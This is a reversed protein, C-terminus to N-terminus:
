DFIMFARLVFHARMCIQVRQISAFTSMVIVRLSILVCVAECGSIAVNEPADNSREKDWM